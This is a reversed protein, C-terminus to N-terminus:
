GPVPPRTSPWFSPPSWDSSQPIATCGSWWDTPRSRTCIPTICFFPGHMIPQAGTSPLTCRRSGPGPRPTSPCRFSGHGRTAALHEAFSHHLFQLEDARIVLPGAAALHATLATQWGVPRQKAPIRESIWAQAASVLSVDAEVRTVGLHELLGGLLERVVRDFPSARVSDAPSEPVPWPRASALYALYAQYLDYQNDPLSHDDQQEFIIAAITALLPVRVLEDLHAQRVQDLFRRSAADGPFPEGPGFWHVAFCRVADADFPQLEYRAVGASHLAALGTSELPRSTVVLRYSRDISGSAGGALVRVLRDRQEADAVEDVADILLLWRCGAVRGALLHPALGSMLLSGYEASVSEALARPLPMNLRAALERASLRVPIVPEALPAVAAAEGGGVPTAGPSPVSQGLWM